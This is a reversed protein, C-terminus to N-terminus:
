AARALLHAVQQVDLVHDHEDVFLEALAGGPVAARDVDATPAVDAERQPLGGLQAALQGAAPDLDDVALGLPRPIQADVQGVARPQVAHRVPARLAVGPGDEGVRQLPDHRVLSLHLCRQASGPTTLRTRIGIAITVPAPPSIPDSATACKALAPKSTTPMSFSM